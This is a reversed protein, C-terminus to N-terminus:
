ILIIINFKRYIAPLQPQWFKVISFIIIICFVYRYVQYIYFECHVTTKQVM